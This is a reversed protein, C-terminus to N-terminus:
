NACPTLNKEESSKKNRFNCIMNYKLTCIYNYFLFSGVAVSYQNNKKPAFPEPKILLGNERKAIPALQYIM